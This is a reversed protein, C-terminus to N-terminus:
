TCATTCREITADVEDAFPVFSEPCRVRLVKPDCARAIQEYTETRAPKEGVVRALVCKPHNSMADNEDGWLDEPSAKPLQSINRVRVAALADRDALAWAEIMRCPLGVLVPFDAPVRPNLRARDIGACILLELARRRRKRELKTARESQEKDIDHIFVLAQADFITAALVVAQEVKAVLADEGRITGRVDRRKPLKSLKHGDFVLKLRGEAMKRLLPPVFGESDSETRLFSETVYMGIDNRGEGVIFIRCEALSKPPM